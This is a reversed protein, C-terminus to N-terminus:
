SGCLVNVVALVQCAHQCQCHRCFIASSLGNFWKIKPVSPVTFVHNKLFHKWNELGICRRFIVDWFFSFDSCYFENKMFSWFIYNNKVCCRPFLSCEIVKKWFTLFLKTNEFHKNKAIQFFTISHLRKELNKIKGRPVQSFFTNRYEHRREDIGVEACHLLVFLQGEAHEGIVSAACVNM